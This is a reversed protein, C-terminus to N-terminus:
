APSEYFGNFMAMPRASAGIGDILCALAPRKKVHQGM